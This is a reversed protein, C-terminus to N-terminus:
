RDERDNARSVFQLRSTNTGVATDSPLVRIGGVVDAFAVSRLTRNLFGQHDRNRTSSFSLDDELDEHGQLM